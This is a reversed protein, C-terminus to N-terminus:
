IFFSIENILFLIKISIRLKILTNNKIMRINNNIVQVVDVVEEVRYNEVEMIDNIAVNPNVIISENIYFKLLKTLFYSKSVIEFTSPCKFIAKQM